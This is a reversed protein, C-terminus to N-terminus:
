IILGVGGTLGPCIPVSRIAPIELQRGPFLWHTLLIQDGGQPPKVPNNKFKIRSVTRCHSAM